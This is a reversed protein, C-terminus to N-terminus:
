LAEYPLGDLSITYEFRVVGEPFKGNIFSDKTIKPFKENVLYKRIEHVLYKEYRESKGVCYGSENLYKEILDVNYGTSKLENFLSDISDGLENKEVRVFVIYLIDKNTELQFQNHITVFTETKNKSTKVEYLSESAYIDFTNRFMSEWTPNLGLEHLRLLVKMEGIVDFVMKTRKANGLLECWAQFWELPYKSIRERKQLSLFDLCLAGYHEDLYPESTFLFIVSHSIDNVKIQANAIEVKHFKEHIFVNEDSKIAVGIYGSAKVAYADFEPIVRSKDIKTANVFDILESANM